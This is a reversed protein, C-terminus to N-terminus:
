DIPLWGAQVLANREEEAWKLAEEGAAFIRSVLLTENRFIRIETGIPVFTV